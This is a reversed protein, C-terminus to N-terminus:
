KATESTSSSTSTSDVESIQAVIDELAKQAAAKSENLAALKAAKEEESTTETNSYTAEVEAKVAPFIVNILNSAFTSDLTSLGLQKLIDNLTTVAKNLKQEGTLGNAVGFQEATSIAWKIAKELGAITIKKGFHESLYAAIKKEHKKVYALIGVLLVVLVLSIIPPLYQVIITKM